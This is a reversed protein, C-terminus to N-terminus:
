RRRGARDVAVRATLLVAVVALGVTKAGGPVAHLRSSGKM